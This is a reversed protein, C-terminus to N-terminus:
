RNLKVPECLEPTAFGARTNGVEWLGLLRECDTFPDGSLCGLNFLLRGGVEAVCNGSDLGEGAEPSPTPVTLVTVVPSQGETGVEAKGSVYGLSLGLMLSGLCLVAMIKGTDRM